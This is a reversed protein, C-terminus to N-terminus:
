ASKAANGSGGPTRMKGVRNMHIELETEYAIDPILPVLDEFRSAIFSIREDGEKALEFLARLSLRKEMSPSLSDAVAADYLAPDCVIMRLGLNSRIASLIPGAIHEDAFGFGVVLITTDPRRLSSQFKAMLELYPQEFALQYKTSRPYILIPQGGQPVDGQRVDHGIDRWWDISGHMKILQVVNPLMQLEADFPGKRIFDVDFNEPRFRRPFNLSFGDVVIFGSRILAEEFCRDYNTTFIQVRSRGQGRRGIRRVFNEHYQLNTDPRVFSCRKVIEGEAFEIFGELRRKTSAEKVYDSAGRAFSLFDELDKGAARQYGTDEIVFSAEQNGEIIATWLDGMTPALRIGTNDRVCLSSGLGSLICLNQDRLAESLVRRIQFSGSDMEANKDHPDVLQWTATLANFFNITEPM